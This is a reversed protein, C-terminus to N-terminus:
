KPLFAIQGSTNCRLGIAPKISTLLVKDANQDEKENMQTSHIDLRQYLM